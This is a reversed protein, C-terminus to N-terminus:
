RRKCYQEDATICGQVTSVAQMRCRGPVCSAPSSSDVMLTIEGSGPRVRRRSDQRYSPCMAQILVVGQAPLCHKHHVDSGEM